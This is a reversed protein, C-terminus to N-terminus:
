LRTRFTYVRTCLTFLLPRVQFQWHLRNEFFFGIIRIEQMDTQSAAGNLVSLHLEVTIAASIFIGSYRSTISQFFFFTPIKNL